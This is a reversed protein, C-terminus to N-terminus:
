ASRYLHKSFIKKNDINDTIEEILETLALATSRNNRFGYQDDNLINNKEIFNDLRNTFLKELIKSFQPLISIPRYNSFSFKIGM